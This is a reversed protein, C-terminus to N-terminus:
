LYETPHLRYTGTGLVPLVAIYYRTNFVSVATDVDPECALDVHAPARRKQLLRQGRRCILGKRNLTLIYTHQGPKHM